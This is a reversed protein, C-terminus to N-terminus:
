KMAKKPYHKDIWEQYKKLGTGTMILTFKPHTGNTKSLDIKKM